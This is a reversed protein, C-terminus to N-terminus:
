CGAPLEISPRSGPRRGSHLQGLVMYESQRLQLQQLVPPQAAVVVILTHCRQAMREVEDIIAADIDTLESLDWGVLRADLIAESIEALIRDSRSTRM